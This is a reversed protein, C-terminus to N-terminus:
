NFSPGISPPVAHIWMLFLVVILLLTCIGGPYIGWPRPAASPWPYLGISLFALILCLLIM